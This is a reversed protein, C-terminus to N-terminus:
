FNNSNIHLASGGTLAFGFGDISQFASDSNIRIQFGDNAATNISDREYSLRAIGDPDTMYTEIYPEDLSAPSDGIKGKHQTCQLFLIATILLFIPQFRM